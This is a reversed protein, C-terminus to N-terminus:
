SQNDNNIVRNYFNTTQLLIDRQTNINNEILYKIFNMRTILEKELEDKSINRYKLIRTLVSSNNILSTINNPYHSDTDEDWWFIKKLENEAPECIEYIRRVYGQGRRYTRRLHIISWINSRIKESLSIPPMTLRTLAAQANDAHFTTLVGYGLVSAQALIRAEEGRVEGIVLYDGRRRLAFKALDYVDIKTNFTGGLTKRTILPDWHTHPLQLEPTDEITIIKVNDPLLTLLARLLTTKGTAVSGTIIIFPNYELIYMLYTAELLSLTNNKILDTITLIRSPKRRIVFSSGRYSVEKGLTIAVRHGEETLGEAYPFAMSLYKGIKKSLSLVFNDLLDEALYINTNIWRYESLISHYIAIPTNPAECSIEEIYDDNILPYLVGYGSILKNLYYNVIYHYEAINTELHSYEREIRSLILDYINITDIDDLADIYEYILRILINKIDEPLPPEDVTYLVEDRRKVIKINALEVGYELIVKDEPAPIYKLPELNSRLYTDLKSLQIVNNQQKIRLFIKKFITKM